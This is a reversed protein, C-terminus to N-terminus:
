RATGEVACVRRHMEGSLLDQAAADTLAHIEFEGPAVSVTVTGPTLTISNSYTALGFPTRLRYPVKIMQPQIPLSPSWVRKAVDINALVVQWLLWPAYLATRMWYRIPFGEDDDTGMHRALLAIAACAVAGAQMLYASHFQGSLLCYFAFLTAWLILTRVEVELKPWTGAPSGSD